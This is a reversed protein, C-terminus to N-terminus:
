IDSYDAPYLFRTENKSTNNQYEPMVKLKLWQVDGGFAKWHADRDAKNEFTTLYMLNPMRGGAIVAGYFVANFNLRKFVDIEGEQHDGKNFMEVKNLLRKETPSEYSRLEYIRESKASTLNPTKFVPHGEFANLLISELREYPVATHLADLYPKGNQLLEEDKQLTKELKAFQQYSHFPIFLYILRETPSDNVKVPKFVGVKSIGARHLAPLYALRLFDDVMIEQEDNKLHYVKIQYFDRKAAMQKAFIQSAPMLVGVIVILIIYKRM